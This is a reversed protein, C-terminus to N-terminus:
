EIASANYKFWLDFHRRITDEMQSLYRIREVTLMAESKGIAREAEDACQGNARRANYELWEVWTYALGFVSSYDRFGNDYAELYGDFFAKLGALDLDCVAAGSWQLSLQLAGSVPSGRGLCELDIVKPDGDDWMVNKPDMDDDVICEIRPIATRAENMEKEARVLLGENEKLLPGIGSDQRFSEEILGEWGIDSIEPEYEPMIGPAIAHIRGQISGAARCRAPSIDRWDTTHGNQWRYIYFYEGGCEQMRSGGIVISPVIPIGVDELVKELEEARRFSNLAEPRKMIEPNLRKVAFPGNETDVRYMRHLFGGSVPTVPLRASGIGKDAFLKIINDETM